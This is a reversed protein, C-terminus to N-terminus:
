LPLPIIKTKEKKGNLLTFKYIEHKSTSTHKLPKKRKIALGMMLTRKLKLGRKMFREYKSPLFICRCKSLTKLRNKLHNFSLLDQYSKISKITLSIVRYVQPGLIITSTKMAYLVKIVTNLNEIEKVYENTKQVLLKIEELHVLSTIYNKHSQVQMQYFMLTLSSLIMLVLTLLPLAFGKQCFLNQIKLYKFNQKASHKKYLKVRREIIKAQNSCNIQKSSTTFLHLGFFSFIIILIAEVIM